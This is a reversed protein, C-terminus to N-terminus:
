NLLYILYLLGTNWNKNIGLSLEQLLCTHRDEKSDPRFTRQRHLMSGGPCDRYASPVSLCVAPRRITVNRKGSSAALTIFGTQQLSRQLVHPKTDLTHAAQWTSLRHTM